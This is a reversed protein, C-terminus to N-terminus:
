RTITVTISGSVTLTVVKPTEFASSAFAKSFGTM